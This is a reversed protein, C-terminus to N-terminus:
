QCSIQYDEGCSCALGDSSLWTETPAYAADDDVCMYILEQPQAKTALPIEYVAWSGPLESDGSSRDACAQTLTGDASVTTSISRYDEINGSIANINASAISVVFTSYDSGSETCTSRVRAYTTYRNGEGRILSGEAVSYSIPQNSTFNVTASTYSNDPLQDIRFEGGVIPRGQDTGSSNFPSRGTIDARRYYGSRDPPSLGRLTPLTFGVAEAEAIANRIADDALIADVTSFDGPITKDLPAPDDVDAFGDDDDDLDCADGAGDGDTDLQDPNDIGVCNDVATSGSSSSGNCAQLVAATVVVLAIARFKM